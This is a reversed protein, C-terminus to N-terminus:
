TIMVLVFVVQWVIAENMGAYATNSAVRMEPYTNTAVRMSSPQSLMHHHVVIRTMMPKIIISAIFFYWESRFLLIPPCPLMPTMLPKPYLMLHHHRESICAKYTAPRLQPQLWPQLMM